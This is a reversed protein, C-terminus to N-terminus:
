EFYNRIIDAKDSQIDVLQNEDNFVSFYNSKKNGSLKLCKM